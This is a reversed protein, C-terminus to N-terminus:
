PRLGPGLLLAVQEDYRSRGQETLVETEDRVFGGSPFSMDSLECALSREMAPEVTRAAMREIVWAVASVVVGSGLLVPIFVGVRDVPAELWAFHDRPPVSAHLRDVVAPDATRRRSPDAGLRAELKGVRRIVLSCSLALEAAIFLMAVILARHWEWRYLYVFVYSGTAAVTIVGALWAVKKM